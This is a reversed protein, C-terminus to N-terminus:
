HHYSLRPAPYSPNPLPVASWSWVSLRVPARPGRVESTSRAQHIGSVGGRAERNKPLRVALLLRRGATVPKLFGLGLRDAWAQSPFAPRGSSLTRPLLDFPFYDTFYNCFITSFPNLEQYVTTSRIEEM